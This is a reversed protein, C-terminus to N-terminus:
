TGDGLHGGSEDGALREEAQELRRLQWEAEEATFTAGDPRRWDRGVKTWGRATLASPLNNTYGFLNAM